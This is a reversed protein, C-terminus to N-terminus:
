AAPRRREWMEIAGQERFGIRRYAPRGLQTAELTTSTCGRRAADAVGAAIAAGALGRGRAEPHTAVFTIWCDGDHEFTAACTLLGGEGEVGWWRVPAGTFRAMAGGLTDPELGYAVDNLTGCAGPDVEVVEHDAPAAIEEARAVMLEPSADLAHGAEQLVPGLRAADWPSVWVTWAEVGAEDYIRALEPLAAELADAGDYVVSNFVSRTPRDPDVAALVGDLELVMGRPQCRALHALAGAHSAHHRAALQADDM